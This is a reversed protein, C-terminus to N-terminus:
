VKLASLGSIAAAGLPALSKLTQAETVCLGLIVEATTQIVDAAANGDFL